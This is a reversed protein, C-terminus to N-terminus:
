RVSLHFLDGVDAGGPAPPRHRDESLWSNNPMTQPADLFVNQIDLYPHPSMECGPYSVPEAPMQEVSRSRVIWEELDSVRLRWHGDMRVAHLEEAIRHITRPSLSLHRAADSVSTTEEADRAELRQSDM